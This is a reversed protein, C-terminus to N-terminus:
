LRKADEQPLMQVVTDVSWGTLKVVRLIMTPSVANHGLRIKSVAPPDVSLFDAIARDNKLSKEQMLSNFLKGSRDNPYAIELNKM